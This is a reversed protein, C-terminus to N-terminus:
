GRQGQGNRAGNGLGDGAQVDGLGNVDENCGYIDTLALQGIQAEALVFGFGQDPGVHGVDVEDFSDADGFNGPAAFNGGEFLQGFQL